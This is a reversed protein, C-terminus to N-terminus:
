AVLRFFPLFHARGAQRVLPLDAVQDSLLPRDGIQPDPELRMPQRSKEAQAHGPVARGEDNLALRKIGQYTMQFFPQGAERSKLVPGIHEVMGEEGLEGVGVGGVFQDVEGHGFHHSIGAVEADAFEVLLETHAFACQLFLKLLMHAEAWFDQAIDETEVADDILALLLWGRRQGLEGILLAKEVLGM